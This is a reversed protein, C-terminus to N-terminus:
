RKNTRMKMNKLKIKSNMRLTLKKFQLDKLNAIKLDVKKM